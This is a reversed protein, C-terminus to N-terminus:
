THAKLTKSHLMDGHLFALCRKTSDEKIPGLGDLGAYDVLENIEDPYMM